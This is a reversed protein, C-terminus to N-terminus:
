PRPTYTALGVARDPNLWLGGIKLGAQRFHGKPVREKRVRGCQYMAIGFPIHNNM